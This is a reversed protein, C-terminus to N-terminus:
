MVYIDSESFSVHIAFLILLESSGFATRATCVWHHLKSEAFTVETPPALAYNVVCLLLATLHTWLCVQPWSIVVTVIVVQWRRREEGQVPWFQSELPVPRDGECLVLKWACRKHVWVARISENALYFTWKCYSENVPNFSALFINDSVFFPRPLRLHEQRWRCGQTITQRLPERTVTHSVKKISVSCSVFPFDRWSSPHSVRDLM